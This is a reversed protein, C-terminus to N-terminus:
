DYDGRTGRGDHLLSMQDHMFMNGPLPPMMLSQAQHETGFDCWVMFKM